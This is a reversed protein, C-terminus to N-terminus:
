KFIIDKEILSLNSYWGTLIYKEKTKSIQGRHTHTWYSPWILTLGKKAPTTVKQYKFETGGDKVDNLYTMFVLCRHWDIPGKHGNEFHWIKFGGGKPYKQLNYPTRLAFRSIDNIDPYKKTYKILMKHLHEKYSHWPEDENWADIAKEVGEKKKHDITQVGDIYMRGEHLDANDIYDIIDNCIKKPMYWGGIQTNIDFDHEIM